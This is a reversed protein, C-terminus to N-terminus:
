GTPTVIELLEIGPEGNCEILATRGYVIEGPQLDFLEALEPGATVRWLSALRVRRLVNNQILVRGLPTDEAEIQGRVTPSLLDFCVRMIGYQVVRGDTQRSLLIKRAYHRGTVLRDLVQVDVPSGHFREVTVTMHADHALLTAADAPMEAAAVREFNGLKEAVPYFLRVLTGLDPTSPHRSPTELM